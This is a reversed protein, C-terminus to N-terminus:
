WGSSWSWAFRRTRRPRRRRRERARQHGRRRAGPSVARGALHRLEDASTAFQCAADFDGRAIYAQVLLQRLSMDEPDFQAAETLLRLADADKGKEQLDAAYQKLREVAAKPDGLEVRARAGSLRTEFDAGDLDGLRIRVEAEGRTDGRARRRAALAVFNVRAEVLLGQRASINGLHWM